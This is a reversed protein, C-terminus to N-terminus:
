IRVVATVDSESKPMSALEALAIPKVPPRLRYYGVEAPTVGRTEAILETVTLGCMRGQCPGMGCRLFSKLQNPGMCGIAVNDVVQQATVEECRCVITDGSPIRFANAPRYLTDLFARAGDYKALAKRCAAEDPLKGTEGNLGRVAAIGALRGREVAAEAGAIGAGDGAVAVGEISTGGYTDVVPVFSLQQADWRHEVGSAMALNVNPVVGQHLLLTDAAMRQGGESGRRFIVAEVKDRGDAALSTIGTLVRVRRRVGAMLKLGKVLYPSTAFPVAHKLAQRWAASDSTDLIAHIQGGAQLMQHAYLWLLPGAGALVVRGSPFLGSAKLLTQAGGVSMVGPLTWGPIPFPRELAGTAIVVRRADLMRAGGGFSVGIELERSLSWVAAGPAHKAGSAEFARVIDQGKWYDDGLVRRDQVPTMTVARWVQGGPAPSDDLVVTSLGATAAVTAAALGAPGAGVVAVDYQDELDTVVSM